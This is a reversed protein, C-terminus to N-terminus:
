MLPPARRAGIDDEGQVAQSLHSRSFPRNIATLHELHARYARYNSNLELLDDGRAKKNIEPRSITATIAPAGASGPRRCSHSHTSPHPGPRFTGARAGCGSAKRERHGDCEHRRGPEAPAGVMVAVM